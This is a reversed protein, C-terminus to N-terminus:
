PLDGELRRKAGRPSRMKLARAKLRSKRRAQYAAVLPRALTYTAAGAVVGPVLGGVLYPLFVQFWFDVLQDWASPGFGLVAKTSQWIGLFANAFAEKLAGFGETKGDGGLIKRGVTMSVAAIFPFTLPNGFFTGFCSALINARLIRAAFIALIFHLGFFPSFSAFVGCALGLSIRHPTDPLRKLRHGMYEIARRWGTRPLVFARVKEWVSPKVRRKFVM